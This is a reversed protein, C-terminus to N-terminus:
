PAVEKNKLIVYAAVTLPLGFGVLVLLAGGITGAPISIGRDIDDTASFASIDPLVGAVTKFSRNLLEVSGSLTETLAVDTVGFETVFQRGLGASAADGLENLGWRGLLLVLTFVVATPWSLFTSSFVSIATVLISLLWLVTLSKALNFAFSSDARVVALSGPPLGIWQDATRCQLMVDFDGSRVAAAPLSAYLTRNNELHLGSVVATAAGGAPDTVTLDVDTPVDEATADGNKEIGARLEIPVTGGPGVPTSVHVGRFRFVCAPARPGPDGKIQQGYTGTRGTFTLPATRTPHAPDGTPYAAELRAVPNNADTTPVAAQVCRDGPTDDVWLVPGNVAAPSLVVYVFPYRGMRTVSGPPVDVTVAQTGTGDPPLVVPQASVEAPTLLANANPDFVQVNLRPPGKPLAAAQAAAELAAPGTTPLPPAPDYGVRLRLEMGVKLQKGEPDLYAAADVPLVIPAMLYGDANLYRRGSGAVPPRGYMDQSEPFALQKANLLGASVYHEFTPRSIAEVAGHDLRYGLDATLLSARVHLYGWTFAGMTLLIVASVRAFGVVKGLVIELRTTPKTVVTFIVRNEIERPLNTCALILTSLVVVLGSAFLCFKTTQRIADQEDAPQQLQVVAVLGLIALPVIWLVKRRVSEAFCVGSIAWM